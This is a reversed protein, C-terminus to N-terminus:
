LPGPGKGWPYVFEAPATWLGSSGSPSPQIESVVDYSLKKEKLGRSGVSGEMNNKLVSGCYILLVFDGHWAKSRPFEPM